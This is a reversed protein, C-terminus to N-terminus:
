RLAGDASARQPLSQEFEKELKPFITRVLSILEETEEVTVIKGRYNIDNRIERYRDVKHFEAESLFRRELAFAFVAEHSYPKYGELALFAQLAERLIEYGDEFRFAANRETLPLDGLDTLREKAQRILSRAEALEITKKHVKKEKLYDQFSKM